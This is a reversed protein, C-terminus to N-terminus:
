QIEIEREIVNCCRVDDDRVAKGRLIYSHVDFMEKILIVCIKSKLM